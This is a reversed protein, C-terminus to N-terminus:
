IAIKNEGTLSSLFNVLEDDKYMKAYQLLTNDYTLYLSGNMNVISEILQLPLIRQTIPQSRDQIINHSGNSTTITFLLLNRKNYSTQEINSLISICENYNQQMFEEKYKSIWDM